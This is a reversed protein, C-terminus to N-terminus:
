TAQSLTRHIANSFGGSTRSRPSSSSSSLKKGTGSRMRELEARGERRAGELPSRRQPDKDFDDEDDDDALVRGGLGRMGTQSRVNEKIWSRCAEDDLRGDAEQAPRTPLLGLDDPPQDGARTQVLAMGAALEVPGRLCDLRADM